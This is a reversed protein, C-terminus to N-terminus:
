ATGQRRHIRMWARPAGQVSDTGHEDVLADLIRESLENAPRVAIRGLRSRDADDEAPLLTAVVEISASTWKFQLQARGAAGDEGMITLCLEDIALRLDEIQDYGFDARGAVAAATLRALTLLEPRAPITLEVQNEDFM